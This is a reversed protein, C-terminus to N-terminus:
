ASCCAIAATFQVRHCTMLFLSVPDGYAYFYVTAAELDTLIVNNVTGADIWGYSNAAAGCM